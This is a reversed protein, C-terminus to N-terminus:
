ALKPIDLVQWCYCGVQSGAEIMALGSDATGEAEIEATGEIEAMGLESGAKRLDALRQGQGQGQGRGQGKSDEDQRLSDADRWRM